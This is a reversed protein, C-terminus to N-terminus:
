QVKAGHRGANVAIEICKRNADLLCESFSNLDLFTLVATMSRGDAHKMQMIIRPEGTMPQIAVGVGLVGHVKTFDGSNVGHQIECQVGEMEPNHIHFSGETQDISM